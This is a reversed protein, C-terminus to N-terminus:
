KRDQQASLVSYSSVDMHVLANRLAVEARQIDIASREEELRRAEKAAELRELAHEVEDPGGAMESLVTVVGNEVTAIGGMVFLSDVVQKNEYLTLMGYGLISTCSEHAPLIGKDGDICRLLLYDAQRVYAKQLPTFVRLTLKDASM